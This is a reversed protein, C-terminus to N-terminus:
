KGKGFADMLAKGTGVLKKFIADKEGQTWKKGGPSKPDSAEVALELVDKFEMIAPKTKLIYKGWKTGGWALSVLAFIGAIAASIM